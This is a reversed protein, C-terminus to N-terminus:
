IEIVIDEIKRDYETFRQELSKLIPLYKILNECGMRKIGCMNVCHYLENVNYISKTSLDDKLMIERSFIVDPGYLYGDRFFQYSIKRIISNTVYFRICWAGGNIGFCITFNNCKKCIHVDDSVYAYKRQTDCPCFILVHNNLKENLWYHIDQLLVDM